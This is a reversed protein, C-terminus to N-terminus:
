QIDGSGLCRLGDPLAFTYHPHKSPIRLFAPRSVVLWVAPLTPGRGLVLSALEVVILGQGTVIKTVEDVTLEERVQVAELLLRAPGVGDLVLNALNEPLDLVFDLAAVVEALDDVM